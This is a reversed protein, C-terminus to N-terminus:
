PAFDLKPVVREFFERDGEFTPELKLFEKPTVWRAEAVEDPHPTIDDSHVEASWWHLLWEGDDAPCEWVKAVPSVVLGVEELVERILADRQTEGAEIRGSPLTWYGPLIVGPGRKIALIRDDKTLVAVVAGPAGARAAPTAADNPPESM